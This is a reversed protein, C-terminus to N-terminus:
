LAIQVQGVANTRRLLYRNPRGTGQSEVSLRQETQLRVLAEIVRHLPIGTLSSIDEQRLRTVIAVGDAKADVSRDANKLLFNYVLESAESKM